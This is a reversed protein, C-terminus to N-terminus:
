KIRLEYNFIVLLHNELGFLKIKKRLFSPRRFQTTDTLTSGGHNSKFYPTM